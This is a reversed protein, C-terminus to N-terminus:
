QLTEGIIGGIHRAFDQLSESADEDYKWVRRCEHYIDELAAKYDRANQFVHAEETEEPLDFTFTVKMNTKTEM